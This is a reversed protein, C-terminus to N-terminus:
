QSNQPTKPAMNDFGQAACGGVSPGTIKGAVWLGAFLGISLLIVLRVIFRHDRRKLGEELEDM